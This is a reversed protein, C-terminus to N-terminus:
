REVSCGRREALELMTESNDCGRAVRGLRHAALLFTGTGAFCDLVTDGSKTSHRILREALEDPKQWVHYREGQRGDPANIEQVAFQEKMLPCDLRPAQGGTFYLIAQWNAKYAHRPQPGLTNKYTWVLIQRLQVHTPLPVHLYARLEQPYPGIFVYGHGTEKVKGLAAPLWTRAFLDIDVVDTSYPPDTLLLDCAPQPPLWTEWPAFAICPKTFARQAQAEVEAKKLELAAAKATKVDGAVMMRVAQSRQNAPLKALTRAEPITLTGGAVMERLEPAKEVIKKADIIYHMNSGVLSAAQAASRGSERHQFREVDPRAKGQKLNAARRTEAEERLYREIDLAVMAKQSSTLHRRKGNLGVVFTVLSGQGSWERFKPVIGLQQCARFRHRGDIIQGQYTWIPELLGHVRIHALLEQYEENSMAPFLASVEHFTCTSDRLALPQVHEEGRSFLAM